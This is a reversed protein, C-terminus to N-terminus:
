GRSLACVSFPNPIIECRHTVKLLLLHRKYRRQPDYGPGASVCCRLVVICIFICYLEARIIIEKKSTM